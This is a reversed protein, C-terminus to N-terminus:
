RPMLVTTGALRDHFGRSDNNRWISAALVVPVALVGLSPWLSSPRPWLFGWFALMLVFPVISVAFRTAARRLGVPLGDLGVVRLKMLRHGITLGFLGIGIVEYAVVTAAQAIALAAMPVPDLVKFSNAGERVEHGAVLLAIIESGLLFLFVAAGDILRSVVRSTVDALMPETSRLASLQGLLAAARDTDPTEPHRM